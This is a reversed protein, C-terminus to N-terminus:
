KKDKLRELIDQGVIKGVSPWVKLIVASKMAAREEPTFEVVNWGKEKLQSVFKDSRSWAQDVIKKAATSSAKQVVAQQEATLKNWKADNAYIVSQEVFANYPIYTNGVGSAAFTNFAWEPTCCIAGDITGAQVAPFVEAWSMTTTQFGLLEMTDKTIQSSWVRINMEQNGMAHVQAPEKTAIAGILGEGITALHKIGHDALIEKLIKNYESNPDGFNSKLDEATTMLFPLSMYELRKDAQAYINAHVIDVNGLKADALLEEGSGLQGAPFFQVKLGVNAGEIETVMEKIIKTGFHDNPLIGAIKLKVDAAQIPMVTAALLALSVAFKRFRFSM